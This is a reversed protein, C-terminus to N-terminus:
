LQRLFPPESWLLACVVVAYNCLLTNFSFFDSDGVLRVIILKHRFDLVVDIWTGKWVLNSWSLSKKFGFKSSGTTTMARILIVRVKFFLRWFVTFQISIQKSKSLNVFKENRFTLHSKKSEDFIQNWQILYHSGRTGPVWQRVGHLELCTHVLVWCCYWWNHSQFQVWFFDSLWFDNAVLQAYIIPWNRPTHIPCHDYDM